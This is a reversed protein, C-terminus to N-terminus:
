ADVDPMLYPAPAGSEVALRASYRPTDRTALGSDRM